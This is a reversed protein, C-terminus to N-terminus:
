SERDITEGYVRGYQFFRLAWKESRDEVVIVDGHSSDDERISEKIGPYEEVVLIPDIIADIFIKMFVPYLLHQDRKRHALNRETRNSEVIHSTGYLLM